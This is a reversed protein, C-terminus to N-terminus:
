IYSLEPFVHGLDCYSVNGRRLSGLQYILHSFFIELSKSFCRKDLRAAAALKGCIGARLLRPLELDDEVCPARPCHPM